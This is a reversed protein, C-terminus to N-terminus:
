KISTSEFTYNNMLSVKNQNRKSIGFDPNQNNCIRGKLRVQRFFKLICAIM